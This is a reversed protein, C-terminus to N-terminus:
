SQEEFFSLSGETASVNVHENLFEDTLTKVIAQAMQPSKADARITLVTSKKPAYIGITNQLKQVASEQDSVRDRVGTASICFDITNSVQNTFLKSLSFGDAGSKTTAWETTSPLNGSVVSDVGLKRVVSEALQRSSLIELASNVEEEQTKQMMLTQSTTATPDLSITERGVRLMLKAESMYSRPWTLLAVWGLFLSALMTSILLWRHVFLIEIYSALNAIRGMHESDRHSIRTPNRTLRANADYALENALQLEAQRRSGDQSSSEPSIM